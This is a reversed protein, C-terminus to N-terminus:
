VMYPLRDVSGFVDLSVELDSGRSDRVGHTLVTEQNARM